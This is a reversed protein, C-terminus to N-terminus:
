PFRFPYATFERGESERGPNLYGYGWSSVFEKGARNGVGGVDEGGLGKCISCDLFEEGCEDVVRSAEENGVSSSYAEGKETENAAQDGDVAISHAVGVM